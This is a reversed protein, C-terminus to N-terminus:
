KTDGDLEMCDFAYQSMIAFLRMKLARLHEQEEVPRAPSGPWTEYAYSIIGYLSRVEEIGMNFSAYWDDEYLDFPNIENDGTM